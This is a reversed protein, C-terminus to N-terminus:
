LMDVHCGAFRTTRGVMLCQCVAFPYDRLGKVTYACCLSCVTERSRSRFVVDKSPRRMTHFSRRPPGLSVQAISYLRLIPQWQEFPQRPELHCLRLRGKFGLQSEDKEPM